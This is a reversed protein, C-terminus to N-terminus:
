SAIAATDAEEAPRRLWREIRAITDEVASETAPLVHRLWKALRWPVCRYLGSPTRCVVARRDLSLNRAEAALFGALQETM